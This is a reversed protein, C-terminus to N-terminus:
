TAGEEQAAQKRTRQSVGRIRAAAAVLILAGIALLYNMERVHWEALQVSQPKDASDDGSLLSAPDRVEVMDRATQGVGNIYARAAVGSALLLVLSIMITGAGLLGAPKLWRASARREEDAGARLLRGTAFVELGAWGALLIGLYGGWSHIIRIAPELVILVALTTDEIGRSRGTYLPDNYLDLLFSSIGSIGTLFLVAFCLGCAWQARRARRIVVKAEDTM